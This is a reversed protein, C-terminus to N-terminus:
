GDDSELWATTAYRGTCLNGLTDAENLCPIVVTLEIAEDAEDTRRLSESLPHVPPRTLPEVAPLESARRVYFGKSSKGLNSAFHRTADM